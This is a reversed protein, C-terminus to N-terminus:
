WWTSPAGSVAVVPDAVFMVVFEAVNVPVTLGLPNAVATYKWHPVLV